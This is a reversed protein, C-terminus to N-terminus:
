VAEWTLGHKEILRILDTASEAKMAALHGVVVDPLADADFDRGIAWRYLAVRGTDGDAAKPRARKILREHSYGYRDRYKSMQYGLSDVPRNEYWDQVKRQVARGFGRGLADLISAFEFLHSAT